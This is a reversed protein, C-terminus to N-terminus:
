ESRDPVRLVATRRRIGLAALAFVVVPLAFTAYFPTRWGQMAMAPSLVWVAALCLSALWQWGLALVAVAFTTRLVRSGRILDSRNRALWFISPLLLVQNYPAYMPVILVTLALVLAIAAGFGGSDAPERRLKWLVPATAAVALAALVAGGHSGLAWNVLQDLVSENETYQHYQRIADIFMGLWGPLVVESAILLLAMTAAFSYLLRRRGKWDSAAWIMLWAVVPWALQPKITALALCAGGAVLYGGAMSAASAALLAGVLLSLQQLKIGQVAAASGLTLMVCSAIV